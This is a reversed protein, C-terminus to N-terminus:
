KQLHKIRSDMLFQIVRDTTYEPYTWPLKEFHKKTYILTLDAYIGDKLAIRHTFNKTSMLIVHHHSIIGPDINIQRLKNSKYSEEIAISQKKLTFSESPDITQKFSLFQRKLGTGM